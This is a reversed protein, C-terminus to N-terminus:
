FTRQTPKTRSPLKSRRRSSMRERAILLRPDADAVVPSGRRVVVTTAVPSRPAAANAPAPLALSSALSLLHVLFLSVATNASKPPAAPASPHAPNAAYLPAPLFQSQHPLASPPAARLATVLVGIIAQHLHAADVHHLFQHLLCIAAARAALVGERVLFLGALGVDM